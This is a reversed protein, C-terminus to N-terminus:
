AVVEKRENQPCSASVAQASTHNEGPFSGDDHYAADSLVDTGAVEGEIVPAGQGIRNLRNEVEALVTAADAHFTTHTANVESYSLKPHVFPILGLACDIRLRAEISPDKALELAIRAPDDQTGVLDRLYSMSQARDAARANKLAKLPSGTGVPRGAGQRRGGHAM